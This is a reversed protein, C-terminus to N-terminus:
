LHDGAVQIEGARALRPACGGDTGRVGCFFLFFLWWLKPPQIEASVLLFM